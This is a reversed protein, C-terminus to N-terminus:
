PKAKDAGQGPPPKEALWSSAVEHINQAKFEVEGTFDARFVLTHRVRATALLSLPVRWVVRGHRADVQPEVRQGAINVGWAKVIKGPVVWTMTVYRGALSAALLERARAADPDDPRAPRSGAPLRDDLETGLPQDRDPRDGQLSRLWGTLRYTDDRIGLLGLDIRKLEFRVRRTQLQSLYGFAAFQDIDVSGREPEGRSNRPPPRLIEDLGGKFEQALGEPLKLTATFSGDCRPKLVLELNYDFCGPLLLALALVAATLLRTTKASM